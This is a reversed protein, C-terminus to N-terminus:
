VLGPMGSLLRKM